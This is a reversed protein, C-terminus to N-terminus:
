LFDKIYSGFFGFHFTLLLLLFPLVFLQHKTEKDNAVGLEQLRELWINSSFIQDALQESNERM